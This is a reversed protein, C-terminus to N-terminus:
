LQALRHPFKFVHERRPTGLGTTPFFACPVPPSPGQPPTALAGLARWTPAANPFSLLKPKWLLQTNPPLLLTHCSRGKGQFPPLATSRVTPRCSPQTQSCASSLLRLFCVSTLLPAEGGSVQTLLALGLHHPPPPLLTSASLLSSHWKSSTDERRRCHGPMPKGKVSVGVGEGADTPSATRHRQPRRQRQELHVKLRPRGRRWAEELM